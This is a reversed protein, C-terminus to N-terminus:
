YWMLLFLDGILLIQLIFIVQSYAKKTILSLNFVFGYLLPLVLGSLTRLIYTSATTEKARRYWNVKNFLISRSYLIQQHKEM